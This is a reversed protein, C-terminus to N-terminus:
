SGSPLPQKYKYLIYISYPRKNKYLHQIIRILTGTIHDDPNGHYIINIFRQKFSQFINERRRFIVFIYSIHEPHFDISSVKM